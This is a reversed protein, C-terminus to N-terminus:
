HERLLEDIRSALAQQSIVEQQGDGAASRMQKLGVTNQEVENDGLIVALRAGSRDAKKLQSKFSGGGSNCHIHYKSDATRLSEALRLAAVEADAGAAVFYIDAAPNESVKGLGQLMLVLREMGMAFGAAPVPKGGLQEVLGDYRGGACITGQAGLADTVWEFVTRNYYDLGRVLRTNVTFAIGAATLFEQLRSFHAESEPDLYDRLDPAGDLLAQTQQNKSDLIRMPNTQLRRQSDEDLEDVYDNLYAVLAERYRQRSGSDGISNLQLHVQDTLGLSEWLRASMCVLEADMDPSAVGFSEVGIQHFQRQRGKQPREYRFMPGAYWLKTTSAALNHQCVSRVCGATGEPRLTLSEDNRDPFTYMEKEVIDTVEGIGRHFLDTFEVLPLRIEQYGYSSVVAAVQWELYQWLPTEQPLIDNMGRVSRVNKM